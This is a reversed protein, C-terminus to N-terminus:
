SSGAKFWYPFYGCGRFLLCYPQEPSKAHSDASYFIVAPKDAM